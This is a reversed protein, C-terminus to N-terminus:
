IRWKKRVEEYYDKFDNYINDIGEKYERKPHNHTRPFSVHKHAFWTRKNVVLKGGKKWTKFQMEHSDQLMDGYRKSDLEGIVNDWWKKEMIWFSGQMAMTEDIEKHARDHERQHWKRGEFKKHGNGMDRVKLKEYVVPPIDMREWKEPDLFYRVATMIWHSQFESLMTKAFDPAFKCHEDARMIYKGKAVRVGSNISERMNRNKGVHVTVINVDDRLPKDPYYGDLVPIIEIEDDELGSNNVISDITKFLYPDKYSPIVVSLKM